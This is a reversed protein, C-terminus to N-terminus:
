TLPNPNNKMRIQNIGNPNIRIPNTEISSNRAPNIRILNILIPNTRNPSNRIQNM